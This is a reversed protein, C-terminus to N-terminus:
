VRIQNYRKFSANLKHCGERDRCVRKSEYGAPVAILDAQERERFRLVSPRIKRCRLSMNVLPPRCLRIREQPANTRANSHDAGVAASSCNEGGVRIFGVSDDAANSGLAMYPDAAGPPWNMGEECGAGM